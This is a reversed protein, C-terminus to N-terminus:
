WKEFATLNDKRKEAVTEEEKQKKAREYEKEKRTKEKLYELKKEKWKEFAQFLETNEKSTM